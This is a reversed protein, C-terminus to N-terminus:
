EEIIIVRSVEWYKFKDQYFHLGVKQGIKIDEHRRPILQRNERKFVNAQISVVPKPLGKVSLPTDLELGEPVKRMGLVETDYYYSIGYDILQGERPDVPLIVFKSDEVKAFPILNLKYLFALNGILSLALILLLLLLVPVLLSRKKPAIIIEPTTVSQNVSEEM